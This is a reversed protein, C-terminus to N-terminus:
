VGKRQAIPLDVNTDYDSNLQSGSNSEEQLEEPEVQSLLPEQSQQNPVLLNSNNRKVYFKITDDPLHLHRPYFTPSQAHISKQHPLPHM